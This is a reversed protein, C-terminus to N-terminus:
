DSCTGAVRDRLGNITYYNDTVGYGPEEFGVAYHREGTKLDIGFYKFHLQLGNKGTWKVIKFNGKIYKFRPYVFDVIEKAKLVLRYDPEAKTRNTKLRVDM